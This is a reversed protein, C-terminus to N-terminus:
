RGSFASIVNLNFKGLHNMVRDIMSFLVLDSKNLENPIWTLQKFIARCANMNDHINAKVITNGKTKLQFELVGQAQLNLAADVFKSCFDVGIM